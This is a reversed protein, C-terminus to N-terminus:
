AKEEVVPLQLINRSSRKKRAAEMKAIQKKSMYKKADEFQRDLWWVNGEQGTATVNKGMSEQVQDLSDSAEQMAADSEEVAEDSAAAAREAETQAKGAAEAAKAAAKSTLEAEAAAKAAAKAAKDMKRVAAGQTIQATRLPQPDEKELIALMAKARCKKVTSLSDDESLTKQEQIAADKALKLAELEALAKAEEEKAAQLKEEAESATKANADALEKKEDAETKTAAAEESAAYADEQMKKTKELAAQAKGFEAKAMNLLRIEEATAGGVFTAVYPWNKIQFIFILFEMLSTKKDFDIDISRLADRMEHASLAGETKELFLHSEFEDLKSGEKGHKKDLKEMLVCAQYVKECKDPNLSLKISPEALLREPLPDGPGRVQDSLKSLQEQAKSLVEADWAEKDYEFASSARRERTGGAFEAM